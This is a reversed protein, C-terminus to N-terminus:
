SAQEKAIWVVRAISKDHSRRSFDVNLDGGFARRIENGIAAALQNESTYVVAESNKNTFKIIRDLPDRKRARDGINRVLDFLEQVREPPLNDLGSLTVIGEPLDLATKRCAPCTRALNPNQSLVKYRREDNHWSKNYYVARCEACYYEGGLAAEEKRTMHRPESRQKRIDNRDRTNDLSFDSSGSTSQTSM